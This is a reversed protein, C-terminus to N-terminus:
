ELSEQFQQWLHGRRQPGGVSAVYPNLLFYTSGSRKDRVKSILLEKRLRTLSSVCVPLKVGLREALYTASVKVKGSAVEMEAMLANFVAMDRLELKRAKVLDIVSDLDRKHVMLFEEHGGEKPNM